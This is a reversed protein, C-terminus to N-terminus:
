KILAEFHPWVNELLKPQADATPHIGDRQMLEPYIAVEDLIFPVLPVQHEEAVKPFTGFFEETYRSGYNPPIQIGVLLVDAGAAQSLETIKSLNKHLVKLPHGQLGDNGGLEIIVIDPQHKRLLGPTRALGMSTTNGSISANIVTYEGQQNLRERLLNVWGDKLEVGYGASISDGIVLVTKAYTTGSAALTTLAILLGLCLQRLFIINSLAM